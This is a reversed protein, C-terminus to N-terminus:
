DKTSGPGVLIDQSSKPSAPVAPAPIPPELEDAPVPFIEGKRGILTVIMIVVFAVGVWLFWDLDIGAGIKEAAGVPLRFIIKNQGLAPGDLQIIWHGNVGFLLETQYQGPAATIKLPVPGINPTRPGNHEKKVQGSYDRIATMNLQLNSAPQDQLDTVRFSFALKNLADHNGTLEPSVFTVKYNGATQTRPPDVLDEAAALGSFGLLATLVVLISFLSQRWPKFLSFRTTTM